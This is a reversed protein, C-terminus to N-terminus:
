FHFEVNVNVFIRCHFKLNVLCLDLPRSGISVFVSDFQLILCPFVQTVNVCLHQFHDGFHKDQRFVDFFFSCLVPVLLM